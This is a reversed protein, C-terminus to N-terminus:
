AVARSLFPRLPVNTHAAFYDTPVIISFWECADQVSWVFPPTPDKVIFTDSKLLHKANNPTVHVTEKMVLTEVTTRTERM